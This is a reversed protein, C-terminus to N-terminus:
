TEPGPPQEGRRLLKLVDLARQARSRDDKAVIATVGAVLRLLADPGYRLLVGATLAISGGAAVHEALPTIDM